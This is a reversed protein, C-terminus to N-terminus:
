PEDALAWAVNAAILGSILKKEDVAEVYDSKVLGYVAALQQLEELPLPSVSRQAIAQVQMTALAGAVAGLAIFGAVKLKAGM